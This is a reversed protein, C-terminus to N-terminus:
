RRRRRLGVLGLAVLGALAAVSAPEPIAQVSVTVGYTPFTPGTEAGQLAYNAGGVFISYEGPALDAFIATVYGDAIGDGFIGAASGFNAASGDAAHGVYTFSRLDAAYLVGSAPDGATNYTPDNGISWDTLSRFSGETGGPRSSVSLAASDHSAQFPALHGLGLFLSFAPLFSDVPGTGLSNREASISVSTTTTLTFRYFRGRHSDGFDADTADAWGFGSSVTQNASILAPSGIVLTEFNRGPSTPHSIPNGYGIHAHASPVLCLGALAASFSTLSSFLNKM